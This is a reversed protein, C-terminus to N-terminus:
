RGTRRQRALLEVVAPLVDSEGSFRTSVIGLRNLTARSALARRQMVDLLDAHLSERRRFFSPVHAGVGIVHLQRELLTPDTMAVDGVTCYLVEHQADLRRLLSRHRDTLDIDDAIVVLIMRRRLNRAAYDLLRELQSDYGDVDIATHITRLIREIHVDRIGPPVYQVRAPNSIGTITPPAPGALLGVLDRHRTSLQAIVGAAMVAVDRKTSTADALAAMSRGTDVVLMVAHQRTAVFRKVMPRGSRATAKWDLDGVDDGPVYERLDDFDMSRGKHISGHEGDLVTRVKRHAHISAKAKVKVLLSSM